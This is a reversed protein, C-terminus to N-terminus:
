NKKENNDDEDDEKFHTPLTPDNAALIGRKKLTKRVIYMDVLGATTSAFYYLNLGAPANYLFIPLILFMWQSMKQMQAQQEDAPKPQSATQIKMQFFFGIGLLIPLLNFSQVKGLLPLTFAPLAFLADPAALDNIWGPIFAAHRLDLDNWLGQYMAIWIPMQIVMPLCGMIGGAPNVNNERYIRMMEEQERKKDNAYKKKIADVKPKIVNMKKAMTAMNIQSSKTLPHLIARVLIVLVFIAIGYNHFTIYKAIFDLMGLLFVALWAFSCYSYIFCGSTTFQIVDGYAFVKYDYQATGKAAASDSLIHRDKPGLYATLPLDTEAGATVTIPAGTFKIAYVNDEPAPAKFIEDVESSAVHRPEPITESTSTTTTPAGPEPLPRNIATFFRDSSAAWLNPDKAFDDMQGIAKTPIAEKVLTTHYLLTRDTKIVHTSSVLYGAGIVRDDVRQDARVLTPATLEDVRVTIPKDTLNKFKHEIRVNYTDPDITFIKRVEVLPKNNDDLLTCLLTAQTKDASVNEIKWVYQAAYLDFKHLTGDNVEITLTSYPKPAGPTEALLKYPEKRAPTEAYQHVNLDVEDIGATINNVVISVKDTTGMPDGLRVSMPTAGQEAARQTTAPPAFAVAQTTAGGGNNKSGTFYQVAFFIAIAILLTTFIQRTDM